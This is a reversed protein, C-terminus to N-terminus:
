SSAHLNRLTNTTEQILTAFAPNEADPTWLELVHVPYTLAVAVTANFVAVQDTDPSGSPLGAQRANDPTSCHSALQFGMREPRTAGALLKFKYKSSDIFAGTVSPDDGAPTNAKLRHWKPLFRGPWRGWGKLMFADCLTCAAADINPSSENDPDANAIPHEITVNPWCGATTNLLLELADLMVPTTYGEDHWQKPQDLTVTPADPPYPGQFNYFSWDNSTANAAGDIAVARIAPHGKFHEAAAQIFAIKRALLVPNWPVPITFIQGASSQYISTNMFDLTTIGDLDMVWAPTQGSGGMGLSLAVDIGRAAAANVIADLINWTYAGATLEIQDWAAQLFLGTIGPPLASLNSGNVPKWLSKVGPSLGIARSGCQLLGAVSPMKQTILVTASTPGSTGQTSALNASFLANGARDTEITVHVLLTAGPAITGLTVTLLSGALVYSGQPLVVSQVIGSPLTATLIAGTVASSGLNHLTVTAALPRGPRPDASTLSATLNFSPVTPM